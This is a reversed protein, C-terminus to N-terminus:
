KQKKFLIGKKETKEEVLTSGTPGQELDKTFQVSKKDEKKAKKPAPKEKKSAYITLKLCKKHAAVILLM